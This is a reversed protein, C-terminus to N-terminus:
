TYVQEVVPAGVHIENLYEFLHLIRYKCDKVQRCRACLLMM